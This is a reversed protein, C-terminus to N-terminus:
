DFNRELFAIINEGEEISSVNVLWKYFVLHKMKIMFPLPNHDVRRSVIKYKM